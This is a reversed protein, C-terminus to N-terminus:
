DLKKIMILCPHEEDWMETLTILQEFEAGTYFRRTRAYPESRVRESLTKVIAYQCGNQRFYGEAAAM